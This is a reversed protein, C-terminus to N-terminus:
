CKDPQLIIDIQQRAKPLFQGAWPSLLEEQETFLPRPTLLEQMKENILVFQSERSDAAKTM